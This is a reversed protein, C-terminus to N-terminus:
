KTILRKAPSVVKKLTFSVQSRSKRPEDSPEEKVKLLDGTKKEPKRGRSRSRDSEEERRRRYKDISRPHRRPSRSRSRDSGRTKEEHRRRYKDRSGSRGRSSRSRNRDSEEERRRRGYKDRSSPRRRPSRSRSRLRGPRYRSGERYDPSSIPSASYSEMEHRLKRIQERDWQPDPSLSNSDADSYSLLTQTSLKKLFPLCPRLPQEPLSGLRGQKELMLFEALFDEGWLPMRGSEKVWAWLYLFHYARDLKEVVRENIDRITGPIEPWIILHQTGKCTSIKVGLANQIANVLDGQRGILHPYAEAFVVVSWYPRGNENVGYFPSSTLEVREPWKSCIRTSPEWLLLDEISRQFDPREFSNKPMNSAEKACSLDHTITSSHAAPIPKAETSTDIEGDEINKAEPEMVGPFKELGTNMDILV